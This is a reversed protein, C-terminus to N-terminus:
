AAPQTVHFRHAHVQLSPAKRLDGDVQGVELLRRQVADEFHDLAFGLEVTARDYSALDDSQNRAFGELQRSFKIQM